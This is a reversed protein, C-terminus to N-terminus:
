VVLSKGQTAQPPYEGRSGDANTCTCWESKPFQAMAAPIHQGCGTWSKLKCNGCDASRCM